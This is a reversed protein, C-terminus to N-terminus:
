KPLTVTFTTPNNRVSISGGHKEVLTKSISLGLGTGKSKTTFLPQFIENMKNKPIGPGSDSFEIEITKTKIKATITIKGQDMAEISNTIINVFIRIVQERDVNVTIDPIEKEIKIRQPIEINELSIDIIRRLSIQEKHLPNDRTFNIISEIEFSIRNIANQIRKMNEKKKEESLGLELLEFGNKVITLPNRLDHSLKATMDGILALKEKKASEEKIKRLHILLIWIIGIGFVLVMLFIPMIITMFKINEIKSKTFETLVHETFKSTHKEGIEITNIRKGDEVLYNEWKKEFKLINGTIPEVYLTSTTDTLITHSTFQPFAKSVNADKTSVEFVYVELGNLIETKKFMMLDDFFVAPHLFNYDKKEVGPSFTFKKDSKDTHMKTIADVHYTSEVYFLVENTDTRKSSVTSKITLENGKKDIINQTLEDKIFFPKSMEGYVDNVVQNQGEYEMNLFDKNSLKENEPIIMITWIMIITMAVSFIILGQILIKKLSNM